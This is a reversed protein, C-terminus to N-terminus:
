ENSLGIERYKQKSQINPCLMLSADLKIFIFYLAEYLEEATPNIQFDRNFIGSERSIQFRFQANFNLIRRLFCECRSLKNVDVIKKVSIQPYNFIAWINTLVWSTAQSNLDMELLLDLHFLYVSCRSTLQISLLESFWRKDHTLPSELSSIWLM